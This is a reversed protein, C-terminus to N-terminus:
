KQEQCQEAEELLRIMASSSLLWGDFPAVKGKQMVQIQEDPLV